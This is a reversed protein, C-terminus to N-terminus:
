FMHCLSPINNNSKFIDRKLVSWCLRNELLDRKGHTTTGFKGKHPLITCPFRGKKSENGFGKTWLAPVNMDYITYCYRHRTLNNWTPLEVERYACKEFFTKRFLHVINVWLNILHELNHVKFTVSLYMIADNLRKRTPLLRSEEKCRRENLIRIYQQQVFWCIIQVFSADRM